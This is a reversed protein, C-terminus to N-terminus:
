TPICMHASTSLRSHAENVAMSYQKSHKLYARTLRKSIYKKLVFLKRKTKPKIENRQQLLVASLRQFFLLRFCHVNRDKRAHEVDHGLHDEVLLVGDNAADFHDVADELHTM